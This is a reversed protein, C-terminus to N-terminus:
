KESRKISQPLPFFSVHLFTTGIILSFNLHENRFHLLMLKVQTCYYKLTSVKFAFM